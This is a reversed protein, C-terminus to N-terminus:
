AKKKVPSKVVKSAYGKSITGSYPRTLKATSPEGKSDRLTGGRPTDGFTESRGSKLPAYMAGTEDGDVATDSDDDYGTVLDGDGTVYGDASIVSQSFSPRTEFDGTVGGYGDETFSEMQPIFRTGGGTIGGTIGGDEMTRARIRYVGDEGLEYQASNSPSMLFM